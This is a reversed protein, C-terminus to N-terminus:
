VTAMANKIKEAYRAMTFTEVAEIYRDTCKIEKIKEAANQANQQAEERSTGHAVGQGTKPDICWWFKRFANYYNYEGDTYGKVRVAQAVAGNKRM